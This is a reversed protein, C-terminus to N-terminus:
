TFGALELSGTGLVTQGRFMGMIQLPGDYAGAAQHYYIEADLVLPTAHLFIRDAQFHHCLPYTINSRPSTWTCAVTVLVPQAQLLGGRHNTVYLQAGGGDFSQLILLQVHNNLHFVMKKNRHSRRPDCPAGRWFHGAFTNGYVQFSQGRVSVTGTSTNSLLLNDVDFRRVSSLFRSWM